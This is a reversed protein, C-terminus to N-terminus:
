SAPGGAAAGTRLRGQGGTESAGFTNVVTVHPLLERLQDVVATSLVAGGSAIVQLASLDYRRGAPRPRRGARRRDTARHRRRDAHDARGARRVPAGVATAADFHRSTDLVLAGGNLLTQLAVWMAGGHILPCLPLRRMIPDGRRVREVIQGPETLQPM